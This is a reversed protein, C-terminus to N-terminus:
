KNETSIENAAMAEEMTMERLGWEELAADVSPFAEYGLEENAQWNELVTDGWRVAWRQGAADVYGGDAAAERKVYVLRRLGMTAAGTGATITFGSVAVNWGKGGNEVAEQANLLAANIEEDGNLAPDIGLTLTPVATMTAADYTLLSNVIRLVSEKDLKAKQFNINTAKPFGCHIERLKSCQSCDVSKVERGLYWLIELKDGYGDLQWKEFIQVKSYLYLERVQSYGIFYGSHEVVNPAYVLIKKTIGVRNLMYHLSNIQPFVCRLEDIKKNASILGPNSMWVSGTGERYLFIKRLNPFHYDMTHGISNTLKPLPYRWVEVNKLDPACEALEDFSVVHAFRMHDAPLAWEADDVSNAAAEASAAANGAAAEANVRAAEAEAQAAEAAGQAVVAGDAAGVAQASADEAVVQAAEAGRQAAVAEDRAALADSVAETAVQAGAEAEAAKAEAQRQAEEAAVRSAEAEAAKGEAVRADADADAAADGAAQASEGAGEASLAAGAAANLAVRKLDEAKAAADEARAAGAEAKDRAREARRAAEGTAATSDGLVVDVQTLDAALVADVIVADQCLVEGDGAVRRLVDVEGSVILWEVGTLVDQCMIQYSWCRGCWPLGPLVLKVGDGDAVVQMRRRQHMYAEAAGYFAFLAPDLVNGASDLVRVRFVRACGEFIQLNHEM